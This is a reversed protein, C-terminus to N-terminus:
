NGSTPQALGRPIWGGNRCVGGGLTAFPDPTTCEGPAPAPAPAPAPDMGPPLWGGNVCIGGGLSAFPDVTTCQLPAPAPQPTPDQTDWNPPDIGPPLWGGDYCRGGGLSAFPDLSACGGLRMESGGNRTNTGIAVPSPCLYDSWGWEAADSRSATVALGCGAIPRSLPAGHQNLEVIPNDDSSTRYIHLLFTRSVPNFVIAFSQDETTSWTASMLGRSIIRGARDIELGFTGGFHRAVVIYNGTEGNVAIKVGGFANSQGTVRGNPALRVFGNRGIVGFENSVPNWAVDPQDGVDLDLVSGILQGQLDLLGARTRCSSEPPCADWVILFVRSTSSYAAAFDYGNEASIIQADGVLLGQTLVPRAFIGGFGKLVLMAGGATAGNSIDPSYVMAVASAGISSDYAVPPTLPNGNVDIAVLGPDTVALYLGNRDDHVMAKLVTSRTGRKFLQSPATSVPASGEVTVTATIAGASPDCLSARMPIQAGPWMDTGVLLDATFRASSGGRLTTATFVRTTYLVDTEDLFEGATKWGSPATVRRFTMVPEHKPPGSTASPIGLCVSVDSVNTVSRNTLTFTM